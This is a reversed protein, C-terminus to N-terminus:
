SCTVRLFPLNHTKPVLLLCRLHRRRCWQPFKVLNAYREWEKMSISWSINEVTMGKRGSIWSPCNDTEPLLIHVTSALPKSSKFGAWYLLIHNPLSVVSSMVGNPQSPWLVEVCVFLYREWIIYEYLVVDVKEWIRPSPPPIQKCSSNVWMQLVSGWNSWNYILIDQKSRSGQPEPTSTPPYIPLPSASDM